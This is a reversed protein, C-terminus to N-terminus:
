GEAREILSEIPHSRAAEIRVGPYHGEILKMIEPVREDRVDVLLLLSGSEVADRYKELHSNPFDLGILGSLLGGVSAGALGLALIAGGGVVLGGPPFAVALLGALMGVIGGGAVGVEVGHAFDTKEVFTAEPLKELAAASGGVTFMHREEIGATRLEDVVKRTVAIDPLLCYLRKVDIVGM